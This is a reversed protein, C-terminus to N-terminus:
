KLYNKLASWTKKGIVGDSNLNHAKQFDAVARKTKEGIKGDLPGTYYGANKLALQVQDAPVDVRLIGDRRTSVPMSDSTRSPTYSDKKQSDQQMGQLQDKLDNIEEDKQQVQEELQSVRTQTPDGAADKRTTACGVLSVLLILVFFSKLSKEGM